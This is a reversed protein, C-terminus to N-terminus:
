AITLRRLKSGKQCIRPLVIGYAITVHQDRPCCASIKSCARATSWAGRTNAIIVVRVVAISEQHSFATMVLNPARTSAKCSPLDTIVGFAWKGVPTGPWMEALNALL